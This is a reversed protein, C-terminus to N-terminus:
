AVTNIDELKWFRELVRNRESSSITCAKEPDIRETANLVGDTVPLLFRRIHAVYIAIRCTVNRCGKGRITSNAAEEFSVWRGRMNSETETRKRATSRCHTRDIENGNPVPSTIHVVSREILSSPHQPLLKKRPSNNMTALVLQEPLAMFKYIRLGEIELM